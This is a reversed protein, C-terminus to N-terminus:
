NVAHEVLPAIKERTMQGSIEEYSRIYHIDWVDYRIERSVRNIIAKTAEYATQASASIEEAKAQIEPHDSEIQPSQSNSKITSTRGARPL